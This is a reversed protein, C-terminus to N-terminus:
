DFVESEGFFRRLEIAASEPSDSAHCINRMKSFQDKSGYDGRITGPAAENSDTPGLIKRVRSIADEGELALAIIPTEQMFAQIAPFFKLHTIHAYHEALLEESARLMKLGRIRFGEKLYRDL